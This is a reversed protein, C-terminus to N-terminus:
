SGSFAGSKTPRETVGVTSRLVAGAPGFAPAKRCAGMGAGAGARRTPSKLPSPVESRSASRQPMAAVIGTVLLDRGELAPDLADTLFISARLGTTSFALLGFSIFMLVRRWGLNTKKALSLAWLALALLAMGLYVPWPQLQAQQVQLANGAVWGLLAAFILRAMATLHSGM